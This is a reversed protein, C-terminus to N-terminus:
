YLRGNRLMSKTQVVGEGLILKSHAAKRSYIAYDDADKYEKSVLGAIITNTLFPIYNDSLLDVTNGGFRGMISITDGESLEVSFYMEGSYTIFYANTPRESTLYEATTMEYLQTTGSFVKEILLIESPLVFCKLNPYYNFAQGDTRSAPTTYEGTPITITYQRLGEIGNGNIEDLATLLYKNMEVLTAEPVALKVNAYVKNIDM